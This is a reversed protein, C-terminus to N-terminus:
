AREGGARAAECGGDTESLVAEVSDDNREERWGGDMCSWGRRRLAGAICIDEETLKASRKVIGHLLVFVRRADGFYLIRLKDKGQQTRLERLKGRVQSSYPFPLNPGEQELVKILAMLKARHEVPLGTLYEEVPARAREDLFFDVQWHM